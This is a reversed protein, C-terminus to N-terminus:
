VPWFHLILPVTALLVIVSVVFGLRFYDSFKYGGPGMVITNSQHGIPTLFAASAGIAIIMLFPDVSLGMNKAVAVGIPAMLVVTAANNIVGSLLMTVLLLFGLTFWIPVVEALYLLQNAITVAGGTSELAGGVPLMAGLLVIVPWDVSDYMQKIPLTGSLVMGVAAMPFAVHVPMLGVIVLFISIGFISLSTVIKKKYGIRLGRRVLPLCGMAIIADNLMHERGQLMLVDGSRFEVKNVRNRIKQDRRAVALLNVGYRSRLRLGASSNGIIPSDAM